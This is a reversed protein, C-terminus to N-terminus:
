GATIWSAERKMEGWHEKSKRAWRVIGILRWYSNLQRYGMNEAIAALFLIVTHKPKTYIPYALEELFLSLMSLLVGFGISLLLFALLGKVSVMGLACFIVFFFYGSLEVLPSLWEFIAMFPLATWGIPGAKKCFLLDKNWAICESLGRQWRIRQKRLVDLREPAETWCMPDPVFAIRYPQHTKRCYRHLRIVLEMDEGLSDNRYGGAEVVTERHFLGFGGSIILLSNFTSWGVRGALFARLYENVQFLALINKPLGSRVIFGGSVTCGNSIRLSGGAAVTTPDELFPQVARRLSDRHLVSDADMCCFLPHYACNIGANISDAKSGGNEKDVVKLAPHTTSRYVAKIPKTKLVKPYVEPFPTLSFERKLVDLTGDKSGDNIVIVEYEGYNLQLLSNVSTAILAEENYAPVLISIPPDYGNFRHSLEDLVRTSKHRVIALLSIISLTLYCGNLCIFYLLIGWELTLILHVLSM